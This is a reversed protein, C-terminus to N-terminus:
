GAPKAATVVRAVIPLAFASGEEYRAVGAVIAARIRELREKPQVALV